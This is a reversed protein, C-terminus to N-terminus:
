RHPLESLNSARCFGRPCWSAGWTAMSPRPRPGPGPRPGSLCRRQSCIRSCALSMSSHCSVDGLSIGVQTPSCVPKRPCAQPKVHPQFVWATSQAMQVCPFGSCFAVQLQAHLGKKRLRQATFKAAQIHSPVSLFSPVQVSAHVDDLCTGSSNM